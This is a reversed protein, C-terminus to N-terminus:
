GNQSQIYKVAEIETPSNEFREPTNGGIGLNTKSMYWSKKSKLDQVKYEVLDNTQKVLTIKAYVGTFTNM